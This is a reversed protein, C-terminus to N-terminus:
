QNYGLNIMNYQDNTKWIQETFDDQNKLVSSIDGWDTNM